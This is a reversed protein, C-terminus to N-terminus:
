TRRRGVLHAILENSTRVNYKRMIRARHAEVTRPSISLQRAAEKSTRGNVLLQAVQRERPTLSTTVPRISSMDAFTWVAAAFPDRRDVARGSVHCWFLSTDARRMVREDSYCGTDRMIGLASEGTRDFEDRSPYLQELSKGTLEGMRHGFMNCFAENYQEVMRGSSVLLGVPAMSFALELGIGATTSQDVDRSADASAASCQARLRCEETRTAMAPSGGLGASIRRPAGPRFADRLGDIGNESLRMRWKAVTREAVNFSRAVEKNSTGELCALVVQARKRMIEPESTSTIFTRLRALHEDSDFVARRPRGRM